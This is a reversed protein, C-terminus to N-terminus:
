SLWQGRELTTLMARQSGKIGPSTGTPPPLPPWAAPCAGGWGATRAPPASGRASAAGGPNRPRVSRPPPHRLQLGALPKARGVNGPRDCGAEQRRPGCGWGRGARHGAAGKKIRLSRQLDQPPRELMGGVGAGWGERLRSAVEVAPLENRARWQGPSLIGAGGRKGCLGEQDPRICM